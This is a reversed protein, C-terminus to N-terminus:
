MVTRIAQGATGRTQIRDTHEVTLSLLLIWYLHDSYIFSVYMHLMLYRNQLLAGGSCEESSEIKLLKKLDAM